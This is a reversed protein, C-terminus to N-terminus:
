ERVFLLSVNNGGFAFSNSMAVRPPRTARENAGVLRLPALRPDVAGDWLHPPLAGDGTLTLWCVAAELAGAAGLTHGTLPKTSSVPTDPGVVAATATSEMADNQETATGHLNVYEVDAASLQARALALQMAAIAQRGTPEPASLHFADSTEGWGALRVPGEGRTLVFLAAAEGINIGDRNRSMPNCRAASVSNLAQFGAVTFQCLSDAGGAIVADVLGARLWRAGAVLAKASSTCATSVVACPGTLSLRSALFRAPTGLEQQGFHWWAPLVGTARLQEYARESEGIGSTSTGLVVGVRHPGHRDVLAELGTLQELAALLLADNRSRYAPPEDDLGPLPGEVAGVVLPPRGEFPQSASLGRPAEGFLRARVEAEGRGLACVVSLTSLYPTM